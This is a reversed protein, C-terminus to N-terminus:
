NKKPGGKAQTTWRRWVAQPAKLAAELSELVEVFTDGARWLSRKAARDNVCGKLKGDELVFTLTSTERAEGDPWALLSMYEALAPYQREMESTTPIRADDGAGAEAAVRRVFSIKKKEAM